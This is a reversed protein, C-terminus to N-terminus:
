TMLGTIREDHQKLKRATARADVFRHWEDAVFKYTGTNLIRVLFDGEDDQKFDYFYYGPLNNSDAETMRLETRKAVFSSGDFFLADSRRGIIVSPGQGTVSERNYTISVGIRATTGTDHLEM